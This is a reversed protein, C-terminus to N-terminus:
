FGILIIAMVGVGCTATYEIWNSNLLKYDNNKQYKHRLNELITMRYSLVSGISLVLFTKIIPNMKM